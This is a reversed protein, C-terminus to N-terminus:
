WAKVSATFEPRSVAWVPTYAGGTLPTGAGPATTNTWTGSSASAM